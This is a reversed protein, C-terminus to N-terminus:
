YANSVMVAPIPESAPKSVTAKTASASTSTPLGRPNDFRSVTQVPLENQFRYLVDAKRALNHGNRILAAYNTANGSYCRLAKRLIGKNSDLCDSLVRTGVEINTEIHTPSRGALKDRHFRPVVQMLGVAGYGSRATSRFKSEQNIISFILFPDLSYRQANVFVANTIRSADGRSVKNKTTDLITSVMAAKSATVQTDALAPFSAVLLMAIALIAKRVMATMIEEMVYLTSDRMVSLSPSQFLGFLSAPSHRSCLILSVSLPSQSQM